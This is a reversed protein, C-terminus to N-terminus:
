RRNSEGSASDASWENIFKWVDKVSKSKLEYEYGSRETFIAYRCDQCTDGISVGFYYPGSVEAGDILEFRVDDYLPGVCPCNNKFWVYFNDLVFDNTIGKLVTWIKKTRGALGANSCFWDYWGAECQVNVDKSDFDGRLYREKFTRLTMEGM